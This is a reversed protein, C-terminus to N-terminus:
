QFTIMDQYHKVTLQAVKNWTFHRLVHDKLSENRPRELSRIIKEQIDGPKSPDLYYVHNEFYEQTSGGKTVVVRAGALAAEMAVLGPTEFWGQLVFLDCAAYASKLLPDEHAISPLFLTFGKGEEQCKSFYSEYGSVPSGILILKKEGIRRVARILNLQNKRPEVRGVGLVFPDQGYRERFISPDAKAFDPDVGNPVVSMKNLPICFLRAIQRMEIM